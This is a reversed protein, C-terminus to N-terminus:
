AGSTNPVPGMQLTQPTLAKVSRDAANCANVSSQATPPGTAPAPSNFADKTPSMATVAMALVSIMAPM